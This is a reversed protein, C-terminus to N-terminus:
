RISRNDLMIYVQVHFLIINPLNDGFIETHKLLLQAGPLEQGLPLNDYQFLKEIWM